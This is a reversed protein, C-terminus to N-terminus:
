SWADRSAPARGARPPPRHRPPPRSPGRRLRGVTSRPVVPRRPASTPASWRWRRSILRHRGSGRCPEPPGFCWRHGCRTTTSGARTSPWCSAPTTSSRSRGPEPRGSRRGISRDGTPSMPASGGRDRHAEGLDGLADLPPRFASHDSWPRVGNRDRRADQRRIRHLASGPAACGACIRVGASHRRRSRGGAGPRLHGFLMSSAVRSRGPNPGLSVEFRDVRVRDCRHAGGRHGARALRPPAPRRGQGGLGDAGAPRDRRHARAAAARVEDLTVGCM